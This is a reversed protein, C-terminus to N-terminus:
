RKWKRNIRRRQRKWKKSGGKKLMEGSDADEALVPKLFPLGLFVILTAVIFIKRM